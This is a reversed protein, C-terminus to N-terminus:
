SNWGHKRLTKWLERAAARTMYFSSYSGIVNSMGALSRISQLVTHNPDNIVSGDRAHLSIEFSSYERIDCLSGVARFRVTYGGLPFSKLQFDIYQTQINM